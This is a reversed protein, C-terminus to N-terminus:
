ANGEAGALETARGGSRRGHVWKAPNDEDWITELEAIPDFRVEFVTSGNPGATVSYPHLARTFYADGPRFCRSGQWVEGEHVLVLQHFNHHHRPITYGAALKVGLLNFAGADIFSVWMGHEYFKQFDVEGILSEPLTGTEHGDPSSVVQSWEVEDLNFNIQRKLTSAVDDAWSDKLTPAAELGPM